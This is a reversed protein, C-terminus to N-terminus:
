SSRDTLNLHAGRAQPDVPAAGAPSFGGRWSVGVRRAPLSIGAWKTPTWGLFVVGHSPHSRSREFRAPPASAFSTRCTAFGPLPTGPGFGECYWTERSGPLCSGMFLLAPPQLCCNRGTRSYHLNCYLFIYWSMLNTKNETLCPVARQGLTFPPQPFVGLQQM